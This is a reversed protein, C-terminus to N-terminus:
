GGAAKKQAAAMPRLKETDDSKLAAFLTKSETANWLLSDGASTTVDGSTPVTLSLGDGGSVARMALVFSVLAFPSTGGDVTLAGGGSRAAPFSRWPLLLVSPSLTKGAIAALVERQREVRGLDGRPDSYRARAYGLANKGDLVQCGAPLNIHAKEDKIARKPCVRVGGIADVLDAYGGLGTEVYDDVHLGTSQEVTRVLLAPGGFSYAANIKNKGHGPIAVYSDRPVSVLVTPGGGSPVHLLMITDTRQGAATGTGLRSREEPTLDQRSDSGVVLYTRGPTDAAGSAPLADVRNLSTLAVVGLVLPYAVLLVLVLAVWPWRRRRRRLRAAPAGRGPVGAPHLQQYPDALHPQQYPPQAPTPQDPPSGPGSPAGSRRGFRLLRPRSHYVTGPRDPDPSM